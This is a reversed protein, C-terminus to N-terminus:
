IGATKSINKHIDPRKGGTVNSIDGSIYWGGGKWEKMTFSGKFMQNMRDKLKKAEKKDNVIYSVKGKKDLKADPYRKKLSVLFNKVYEDRDPNMDIKPLFSLDPLETNGNNEELYKKFRM